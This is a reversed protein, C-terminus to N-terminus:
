AMTNPRQLYAIDRKLGQVSIVWIFLWVSLLLCLALALEVPSTLEFKYTIFLHVLAAALSVLTPKMLCRLIDMFGVNFAKKTLVGLRPIFTIYFLSRAAVIAAVGFPAAIILIVIWGITMESMARLRLDTRGSAMFAQGNLGLAAQFAIAPTLLAFILAVDAWRDSLLTTFFAHGAAAVMVVPPIIILAMLRTGALFLRKIADPITHSSAMKVYIVQGIPQVVVLGPLRDFRGVMAYTGLEDLTGVKSIAIRVSQRNAFQLLAWGITDIGFRLHQGLCSLSFRLAPRFRSVLMLIVLQSGFMILQQAALSWAGFGGIALWVAGAAGAAASLFTVAALKFFEREKELHVSLVASVSQILPIIALLSMIQGLEESEYAWAVLQATGLICVALGLGIATLLWFASSWVLQDVNRDRLLSRGIGADSLVMAFLVFVMALSVLGFEDPSLNRAIIPLILFQVAASGTRAASLAAVSHIM